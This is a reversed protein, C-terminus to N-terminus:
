QELLTKLRLLHQDAQLGHQLRAGAWCLLGINAASFGSLWEKTRSGFLLATSKIGAQVDDRKDQRPAAPNERWECEELM